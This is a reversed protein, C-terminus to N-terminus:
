SKRDNRKRQKSKRAALITPWRRHQDQDKGSILAFSLMVNAKDKLVVEPEAVLRKGKVIGASGSYYIRM